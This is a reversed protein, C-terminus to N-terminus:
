LISVNKAVVIVSFAREPGDANEPATANEGIKGRAARVITQFTERKQNQKLEHIPQQNHWRLALVSLSTIIDFM